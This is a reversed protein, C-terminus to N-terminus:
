IGGSRRTLTEALSNRSMFEETESSKEGVAWQETSASGITGPNAVTRRWGARRGPHSRQQFQSRRPVSNKEDAPMDGNDSRGMMGSAGDASVHSTRDGDQSATSGLALYNRRGLISSNRKTPSFGGGRLQPLTPSDVEGGGVLITGVDSVSSATHGSASSVQSNMRRLEAVAQTVHMSNMKKVDGGVTSLQGLTDRESSDTDDLDKSGRMSASDRSHKKEKSSSTKKSMDDNRADDDRSPLLVDKVLREITADSDTGGGDTHYGDMLIDTMQRGYRASGTGGLTFDTTGSGGNGGLTTTSTALTSTSQQAAYDKSDPSDSYHYSDYLSSLRTESYASPTDYAHNAMMSGLTPSGDLGQLQLYRQPTRISKQAVPTPTDEGSTTNTSYVAPRRSPSATFNSDGSGGMAASSNLGRIRNSSNPTTSGAGSYRGKMAANAADIATPRPGDKPLPSFLQSLRANHQPTASVFPDDNDTTKIAAQPTQASGGYMATSSSIVSHRASSRGSDVISRIMRTNTDIMQFDRMSPSYESDCAAGSHASISQVRLPAPSMGPEDDNDNDANNEADFDRSRRLVEVLARRQSDTRCLGSPISVVSGRSNRQRRGGNHSPSARGSGPEDESYLTSLASSETSAPSFPQQSGDVITGAAHQKHQPQQEQQQEAAQAKTRSPSSHPTQHSALFTEHQSLSRNGNKDNNKSDSGTALSNPESIMSAFSVHSIRRRHQTTVELPLVDPALSTSAASSTPVILNINDGTTDSSLMTERANSKDADKAPSMSRGRSAAAMEISSMMLNESGAVDAASNVVLQRRESRSRDELREATMRLIETLESDTASQRFRPPRKPPSSGQQQQQQAAAPGILNSSNMFQIQQQQHILLMQQQQQQQKKQQQQVIKQKHAADAAMALRHRPNHIATAPARPIVPSANALGGAAAQWSYTYNHDGGDSASGCHVIVPTSRPTDHVSIEERNGDHGIGVDYSGGGGKRADVSSASDRNKLVRPNGIIEEVSRSNFSLKRSLSKGLTQPFWSRITSSSNRSGNKNNNSSTSTEKGRNEASMAAAAAAADTGAGPGTYGAFNILAVTSTRNSNAFEDEAVWSRRQSKNSLRVMRPVTDDQKEDDYVVRQEFQVTSQYPRALFPTIASSAVGNDSTRQGAATQSYGIKNGDVTFSMDSAHSGTKKRLRKQQSLRKSQAAAAAAAAASAGAGDGFSPEYDGYEEGKEKDVRIMEPGMSTKPRLVLGGGGGGAAAAGATGAGRSGINGHVAHTDDEKGDTGGHQRDRLRALWLLVLSLGVFLVIAGAVAIGAIAGVSLITGGDGGTNNDNNSNDPAAAAAIAQRYLRLRM